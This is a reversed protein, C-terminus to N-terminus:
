PFEGTGIYHDVAKGCSKTLRDMLCTKVGDEALYRSVATDTSSAMKRVEKYYVFAKEYEGEAFCQEARKM